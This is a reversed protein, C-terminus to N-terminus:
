PAGWHLISKIKESSDEPSKTTKEFEARLRAKEEEPVHNLYDANAWNLKCRLWVYFSLDPEEPM